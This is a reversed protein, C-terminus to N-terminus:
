YKGNGFIANRYNYVNNSYNNTAEQVAKLYEKYTPSTYMVYNDGGARREELLKEQLMKVKPNNSLKYQEMNKM